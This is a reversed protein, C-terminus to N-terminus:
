NKAPPRTLDLAPRMGFGTKAAPRQTQPTTPRLPATDFEPPTTKAPVPPRVAIAPRERQSSPDHRPQSQHEPRAVAGATQLAPETRQSPAPANAAPHSQQLRETVPQTRADPTQPSRSSRPDSLADQAANPQQSTQVWIAQEESAVHRQPAAQRAPRAASAPATSMPPQPKPQPTPEPTNRTSQDRASPETTDMTGRWRAVVTDLFGTDGVERSWNESFRGASGHPLADLPLRDFRLRGPLAVGEGFVVAEGEGMSPLFELLSTAADSVAAKVIDQDRENTMRMAFVTSCQSLITPDLEAPRQSVVCLSVGYKRGEKAIRSLARKAPEFGLRTDQPMYRHAEECVVHIPVAGECWLAFDFSMRCLVSVVVSVVESPLSTLEIITIPRGNVPVRFLRGLIEAMKDEVTLNGFMFTYRPDLSLSELRNKLRKFPGREGRLDLRGLHEDVLAIVDSIRYPVPTDVSISGSDTPRRQVLGSKDRGRGTAYRQKAIPILETLIDIEAECDKQNGLIVEIFEEFTLLWFPLTLNRPSVVEASGKFASAYENHPDLLLVHAQPNKELIGRLILAVSCSKGTGTSGLVAFHKGLLEDIDIMAPIAADQQIVGIRVGSQSTNSYAQQLQDHSAICVSDGLAPYTSVGRRFELPDRLSTQFLEGMLELEAVLLEHEGAQHAPAPISLATVLGFAVTSRTQIALLTGMQCGTPEAMEQQSDLAVIAQSGSISVVRGITPTSTVLYQPIQMSSAM